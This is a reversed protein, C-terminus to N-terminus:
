MSTGYKYITIFIRVNSYDYYHNLFAHVYTYISPTYWILFVTFVIVYSM